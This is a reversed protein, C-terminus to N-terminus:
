GLYSGYAPIGSTRIQAPPAPCGTDRGRGIIFDAHERRMFGIAQDLSAAAVRHPVRQEGAENEGSPATFEWLQAECAGTSGPRFGTGRQGPPKKRKGIALKGSAPRATERM